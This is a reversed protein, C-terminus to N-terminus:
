RQALIPPDEDKPKNIWVIGPLKPPEPPKRVFREPHREYVSQLIDGRMERLREALGFHM